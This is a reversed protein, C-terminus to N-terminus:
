PNDLDDLGASFDGGGFKSKNGKKAGGFTPRGFSAGEGFAAKKAPQKDQGAKNEEKGEDM